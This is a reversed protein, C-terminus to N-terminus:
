MLFYLLLLFIPTHITTYRLRAWCANWAGRFLTKGDHLSELFSVVEFLAEEQLNLQITLVVEDDVIAKGIFTCHSHAGKNVACETSAATCHNSSISPAARDLRLSPHSNVSRDDDSPCSADGSLFSTILEHFYIAKMKLVDIACMIVGREHLTNVEVRVMSSASLRAVNPAMVMNENKYTKMDRGSIKPHYRSDDTLSIRHSLNSINNIDSGLSTNTTVPTESNISTFQSFDETSPNSQSEIPPTSSTSRPTTVFNRSPGDMGNNNAGSFANMTRSGIKHLQKTVVLSRGTTKNTSQKRPSFWAIILLFLVTM